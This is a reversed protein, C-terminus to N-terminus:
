IAITKRIKHMLTLTSELRDGGSSLYNTYDKRFRSEFSLASKGSLDRLDHGIYEPNGQVNRYHRKYFLTYTALNPVVYKAHGLEHCLVFMKISITGEGYESYPRDEDDSAQMFYTAGQYPITAQERTILKIYVDTPRGRKDTIGDIEYFIDPSIIRLQDILDQTIEYCLIYNVVSDIRSKLDRRQSASLDSNETLLSNLVQLYEKNSQIHREYGNKIKGFLNGFSLFL